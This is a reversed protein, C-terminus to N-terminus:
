PAEKVKLSLWVNAIYIEFLLSNQEVFILGRLSFLKSTTEVIFSTADLAIVFKEQKNREKKVPLHSNPYKQTILLKYTLLHM